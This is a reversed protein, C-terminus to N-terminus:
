MHVFLILLPQRAIFSEFKEETHHVICLLHYCM